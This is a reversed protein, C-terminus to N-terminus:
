RGPVGRYPVRPELGLRSGAVAAVERACRDFDGAAAGDLIGWALKRWYLAQQEEPTLEGHVEEASSMACRREWDLRAEDMPRWDRPVRRREPSWPDPISGAEAARPRERRRTM